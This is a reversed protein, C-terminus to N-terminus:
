SIRRKDGEMKEEYEQELAAWRTKNDNCIGIHESVLPIVQSLPTLAPLILFDIFNKQSKAVNVTTRDMLM